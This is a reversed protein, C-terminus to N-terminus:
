TSPLLRELCEAFYLHETSSPLELPALLNMCDTHASITAAGAYLTRGVHQALVKATTITPVYSRNAFPFALITKWYRPRYVFMFWNLHRRHTRFPSADNGAAVIRAITIVRLVTSTSDEDTFRPPVVKLCKEPVVTYAREFPCQVPLVVVTGVRWFIARPSGTPLLGPIPAVRYEKLILSLARCQRFQRLLDADCVGLRVTTM